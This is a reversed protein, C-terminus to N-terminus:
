PRGMGYVTRYKENPDAVPDRNSGLPKCGFCYERTRKSLFPRFCFGCVCCKLGDVTGEEVDVEHAGAGVTEM